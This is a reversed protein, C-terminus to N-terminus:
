TSSQWFQGWRIIHLAHFKARDEMRMMVAEKSAVLKMEKDV